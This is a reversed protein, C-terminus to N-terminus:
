LGSGLTLSLTLANMYVDLRTSSQEMAPAAPISLSSGIRFTDYDCHSNTSNNWLMAVAALGAAIAFLEGSYGFTTAAGTYAEASASPSMTPSAIATGNTPAAPSGTGASPGM